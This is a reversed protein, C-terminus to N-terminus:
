DASYSTSNGNQVEVIDRIYTKLELLFVAQEEKTIFLADPNTIVNMREWPHENVYQNYTTIIYTLLTDENEIIEYAIKLQPYNMKNRYFQKLERM